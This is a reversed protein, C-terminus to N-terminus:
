EDITEKCLSNHTFIKIEKKFNHEYTIASYSFAPLCKIIIAHKQEGNMWTLAVFKANYSSELSSINESFPVCISDTNVKAHFSKFNSVLFDFKLYPHSIM